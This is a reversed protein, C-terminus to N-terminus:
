AAGSLVTGTFRESPVYASLCHVVDPTVAARPLVQAETDSVYLFTHTPTSAVERVRAWPLLSSGLDSSSAIGAKSLEVTYTTLSVTSQSALQRAQRSIAKVLSHHRVITLAVGILLTTLVLRAPDHDRGQVIIGILVTITFAEIAARRWIGHRLVPNHVALHDHMAGLDDVTIDFRTSASPENDSSM